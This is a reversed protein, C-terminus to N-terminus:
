SFLASSTGSPAVASGTFIEQCSASFLRYIWSRFRLFHQGHGSETHATTFNSVAYTSSSLTPSLAPSLVPCLQFNGLPPLLADSLAAKQKVSAIGIDIIVPLVDSHLPAGQCDADPDRGPCELPVIRIRRVTARIGGVPMMLWDSLAFLM